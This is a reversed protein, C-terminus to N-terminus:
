NVRKISENNNLDSLVKYTRSAMDESENYELELYNHLEGICETLEIDHFYCMTSFKEALSLRQNYDM